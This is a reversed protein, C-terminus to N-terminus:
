NDTIAVDGAHVTSTRIDAALAGVRRVVAVPAAPALRITIGGAVGRGVLGRALGLPIGPAGPEIILDVPALAIRTPRAWSTVIAIFVQPPDRGDGLVSFRFRTGM